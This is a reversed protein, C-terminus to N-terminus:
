TFAILVEHERTIQRWQRSDNRKRKLGGIYKTAIGGHRPFSTNLTTFFLDNLTRLSFISMLSISQVGFWYM